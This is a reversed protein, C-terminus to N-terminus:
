CPNDEGAPIPVPARATTRDQVDRIIQTAELVLGADLLDLVTRRYRDYSQLAVDRVETLADDIVARDCHGPAYLMAILRREAIVCAAYINAASRASEVATDHTMPM